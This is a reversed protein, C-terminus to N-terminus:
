ADFVPHPLRECNNWARTGAPTVRWVLHRMAASLFSFTIRLQETMRRQRDEKVENPLIVKIGNQRLYAAIRRWVKVKLIDNGCISVSRIVDTMPLSSM